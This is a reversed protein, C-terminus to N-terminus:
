QVGGKEKSLMWQNYSIRNENGLLTGVTEHTIKDFQFNKLKNQHAIFIGSSKGLSDVSINGFSIDIM